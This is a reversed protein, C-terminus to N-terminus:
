IMSKLREAVLPAISVKSTIKEITDTSIVEKIGATYLRLLTHGVLVPHVCFAYVDNAGNEKLMKATELVTGGTSIMDDMIVIDRGNVDLNKPKIVVKDSSIRTKEMYDFDYYNSVTNFVTDASGEDPAIVIPDTLNMGKIHDILLPMANLDEVPSNFFNLVSKSHINITYVKDARILGAIVRASIPEGIEFMKDQRAYGFYPMLVVKKGVELNKCADIIELLYILDSDSSISQIILVDEGDIRDLIRCYKEGDPFTKYETAAIPIDL